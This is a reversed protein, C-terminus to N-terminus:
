NENKKITLLTLCYNVGILRILYKLILKFLIKFYMANITFEKMILLAM